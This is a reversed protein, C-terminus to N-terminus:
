SRLSSCEIGRKTTLVALEQRAKRDEILAVVAIALTQTVAPLLPACALAARAEREVREAARDSLLRDAPASM